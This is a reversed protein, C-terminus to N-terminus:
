FQMVNPDKGKCYTQIFEAARKANDRTIRNRFRIKVDDDGEPPYTIRGWKPQEVYRSLLSKWFGKRTNEWWSFTNPVKLWLIYQGQEESTVAETMSGFHWSSTGSVSRSFEAMTEIPRSRVIRRDENAQYTVSAKCSSSIVFSHYSRLREFNESMRSGLHGVSHGGTERLQGQGNVASTLYNRARDFREKDTLNEVNQATAPGSVSFSIASISALLVALKLYDQM